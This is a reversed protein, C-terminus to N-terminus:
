IDINQIIHIILIHFYHIHSGHLYTFNIMLRMIQVYIYYFTNWAFQIQDNTQKQKEM